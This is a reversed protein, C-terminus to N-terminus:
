RSLWCALAAVLLLSHRGRAVSCLLKCVQPHASPLASCSSGEEPTVPHPQHTQSWLTWVNAGTDLRMHRERRTCSLGHHQSCKHHRHALFLKWNCPAPDLLTHKVPTMVKFKDSSQVGDPLTLSLLLTFNSLKIWTLFFFWIVPAPSLCVSYYTFTISIVTVPSKFKWIHTNGGAPLRIANFCWLSSTGVTFTPISHPRETSSSTSKRGPSTM